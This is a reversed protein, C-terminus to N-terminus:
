RAKLLFLAREMMAALGIVGVFQMQNYVPLFDSNAARMLEYVEDIRQDPRVRPKSIDNDIIQHFPHKRHDERTIIGTIALDEDVVALYFRENLWEGVQQMDELISVSIFDRDVLANIEM